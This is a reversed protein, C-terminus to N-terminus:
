KNIKIRIIISSTPLSFLFLLWLLSCLMGHKVRLSLICPGDIFRSGTSTKDDGLVTYSARVASGQGHMRKVGVTLLLLFYPYM